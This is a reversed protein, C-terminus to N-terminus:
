GKTSNELFIISCRDHPCLLFRLVLTRPWIDTRPYFFRQLLQIPITPHQVPSPLTARRYRRCHPIPVLPFHPLNHPKHKCSSDILTSHDNFNFNAHPMLNRQCVDWPAPDSSSAEQNLPSAKTNSKDVSNGPQCLCEITSVTFHIM